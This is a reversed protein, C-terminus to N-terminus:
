GIKFSAFVVLISIIFLVCCLCCCCFVSVKSALHLMASTGGAESDMIQSETLENPRRHSSPNPEPSLDRIGSDKSEKGYSNQGYGANGGGGCNDKTGFTDYPQHHDPSQRQKNQSTSRKNDRRQSIKRPSDRASAPSAPSVYKENKAKLDRLLPELPGTIGLRRCANALEDADMCDLAYQGLKRDDVERYESMIEM